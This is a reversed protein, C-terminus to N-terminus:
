GDPADPSHQLAYEIVPKFGKFNHCFYLFYKVIPGEPRSKEASARDKQAFLSFGSSCVSACGGALPLMRLSACM